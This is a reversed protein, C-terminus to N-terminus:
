RTVEPLTLWLCGPAHSDEDSGECLLCVAGIGRVHAWRDAAERVAAVLADYKERLAAFMEVPVMNRPWDKPYRADPRGDLLELYARAITAYHHEAHDHLRPAPGTGDCYDRFRPPTAVLEADLRMAEEAIARLTTPDTM